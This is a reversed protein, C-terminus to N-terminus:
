SFENSEGYDRPGQLKDVERDAQDEYKYAGFKEILKGTIKEVLWVEYNGPIIERVIFEKGYNM